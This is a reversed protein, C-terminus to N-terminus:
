NIVVLEVRRNQSRGFDTANTDIPALPGVGVAVLRDAQVSFDKKLASVIAEARRKSLDINYQFEGSSDTHGVVALKLDPQDGMIKGIRSASAYASGKLEASDFDFTIGRIIVRGDRQLAVVVEDPDATAIDYTEVISVRSSEDQMGACASLLSLVTLAAIAAMGTKKLSINTM